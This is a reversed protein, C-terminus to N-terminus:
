VVRHIHVTIVMGHLPHSFQFHITHSHLKACLEDTASGASVGFLTSGSDRVEGRCGGASDM